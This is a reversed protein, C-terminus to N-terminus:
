ASDATGVAQGHIVGSTRVVGVVWGLLQSQAVRIQAATADPALPAMHLRVMEDVLVDSVTSAMEILAARHDAVLSQRCQEDLPLGDLEDALGHLMGLLRVAKTPAVLGTEQGPKFSGRQLRTM